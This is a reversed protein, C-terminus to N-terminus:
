MGTNLAICNPSPPNHEEQLWCTLPFKAWSSATDVSSIPLNRWISCNLKWFMGLKMLYPLPCETDSHLDKENRIWLTNSINRALLKEKPHGLLNQGLNTVYCSDPELSNNGSCPLYLIADESESVKNNFQYFINAALAMEGGDKKKEQSWRHVSTTTGTEEPGESFILRDEIAWLEDHLNSALVKSSRTWAM